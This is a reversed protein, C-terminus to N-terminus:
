ATQSSSPGRWSSMGDSNSARQPGAAPQPGGASAADRGITAAFATLDPFFAAFDGAFGRHNARLADQGLALPVPRRLRAAIRRLVEGVGDLDACAGLWDNAIMRPLARRLREPLLSEHQHLLAYCEATFETLAGGPGFVTWDRVLFHDYFVDVLVASFRQLSGRIRARSRRFVPHADTFRDVARHHDIGRRVEAPLRDLDHGRTFDGLLCGLRALPTPPALLLHALHNM